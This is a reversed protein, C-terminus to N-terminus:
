GSNAMCKNARINTLQNNCSSRDGNVFLSVNRPWDSMVFTWNVREESDSGAVTPALIHRDPAEAVQEQSIQFSSKNKNFVLYIYGEFLFNM